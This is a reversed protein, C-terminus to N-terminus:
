YLQFSISKRNFLDEFNDFEDMNDFYYILIIQYENPLSDFLKTFENSSISIIDNKMRM